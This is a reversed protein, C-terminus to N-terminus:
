SSPILARDASPVGDIGLARSRCATAPRRGRRRSAIVVTLTRYTPKRNTQCPSRKVGTPLQAGNSTASMKASASNAGSGSSISSLRSQALRRAPRTSSAGTRSSATVYPGSKRGRVTGEIKRGLPGAPPAVSRTIVALRSTLLSSRECTVPNSSASRGSM